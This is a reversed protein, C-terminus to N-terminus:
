LVTINATGRDCTTTLLRGRYIQLVWVEYCVPTYDQHCGRYSWCYCMLTLLLPLTKNLRLPNISFVIKQFFYDRPTLCELVWFCFSAPIWPGCVSQQSCSAMQWNQKEKFSRTHNWVECLSRFMTESRSVACKMHVAAQAWLMLSWIPFSTMSIM